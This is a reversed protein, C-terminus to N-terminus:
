NIRKLCFNLIHACRNRGKSRVDRERQGIGCMDIWRPINFRGCGLICQCQHCVLSDPTLYGIKLSFFTNTHIYHCVFCLKSVTLSHTDHQALLVILSSSLSLHLTPTRLQGFQCHLRWAVGLNPRHSFERRFTRINITGEVSLYFM